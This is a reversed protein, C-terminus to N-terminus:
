RSFFRVKEYNNWQEYQAIISDEKVDEALEWTAEAYQLGAWKVLYKTVPKGQRVSTKKAIVRDVQATPSFWGWSPDCPPTRAEIYSPDVPEEPDFVPPNKLWKQVRARNTRDAELRARPVWEVHLYSM